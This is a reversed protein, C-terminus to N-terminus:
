GLEDIFATFEVFENEDYVEEIIINYNLGMFYKLHRNEFSITPWNPVDLLVETEGPMLDYKVRVKDGHKNRIDTGDGCDVVQYNRVIFWGDYCIYLGASLMIYDGVDHHKIQELSLGKFQTCSPGITAYIGM